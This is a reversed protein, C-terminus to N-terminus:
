VASDDDLEKHRNLYDVTSDEANAYLLLATDLLKIRQRIREQISPIALGLSQCSKVYHLWAHSITYTTCVEQHTLTISHGWDTLITYISDPESSKHVVIGNGTLGTKALLHMGVEIDHM